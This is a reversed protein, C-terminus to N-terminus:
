RTLPSITFMGWNWCANWHLGPCGITFSFRQRTHHDVGSRVFFAV